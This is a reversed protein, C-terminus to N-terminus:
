KDEREAKLLADMTCGELNQLAVGLAYVTDRSKKLANVREWFRGSLPGSYFYYLPEGMELMKAVKM